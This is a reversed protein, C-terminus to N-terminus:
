RASHGSPGPSPPATSSPSCAGLGLIFSLIADYAGPFTVLALAAARENSSAGPRNATAGVAVVILALLGALLGLTLWTAQRRVLKRLGSLFLRM